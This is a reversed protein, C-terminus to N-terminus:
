VDDGGVIPYKRRLKRSTIGLRNRLLAESIMPGYENQSDRDKRDNEINEGINHMAEHVSEHADVSIIRNMLDEDMLRADRTQPPIPHNYYPHHQKWMHYIMSPFIHSGYRPHNAGLVELEKMEPYYYHWRKEESPTAIEAKVVSWAVNFAEPM